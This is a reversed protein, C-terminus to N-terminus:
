FLLQVVGRMLEREVRMSLSWRITTLVIHQMTHHITPLTLAVSAALQGNRRHCLVSSKEHVLADFRPSPGVDAAPALCDSSRRSPM